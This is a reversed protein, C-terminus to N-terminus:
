NWSKGGKLRLQLFPDKKTFLGFNVIKKHAQQYCSLSISMKQNNEKFATFLENTIEKLVAPNTVEYFEIDLTDNSGVYFFYEKKQCENISICYGSSILIDYFKKGIEHAYDNYYGPKTAMLPLSLFVGLLLIKIFLKM